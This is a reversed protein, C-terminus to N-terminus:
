QANIMLLLENVAMDIANKLIDSEHEPLIRTREIKEIVQKAALLQKIAGSNSM